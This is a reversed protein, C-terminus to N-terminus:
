NFDEWYEEESLYTNHNRLYKKPNRLLDDIMEECFDIQDYRIRLLPINSYTALKNKAEDMSHRFLFEELTKFFINVFKFHQKGDFEIFSHINDNKLLTFDYRLRSLREKSFNGLEKQYQNLLLGMFEDYDDLIGLYKFVTKVTVNHLYTINKKDLIYKIRYEGLSLRVPCTLAEELTFGHTNLRAQLRNIPIGWYEAMEKLSDFKNGLHDECSKMGRYPTTLIEELTMGEQQRYYFCNTSIGYNLCMETISAFANGKHDFTQIPTLAEKQSLGRSLQSKYYHQTVGFARCMEKVSHYEVGNFDTCKFQFYTENTLAEEVSYGRRLRDKYKGLPIGYHNCM